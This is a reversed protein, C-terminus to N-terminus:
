NSRSRRLSPKRRMSGMGGIIKPGLRIIPIDSEDRAAGFAERVANWKLWTVGSLFIFLIGFPNFLHGAGLADGWFAGFALVLLVATAAIRSIM